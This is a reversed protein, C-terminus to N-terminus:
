RRKQSSEDGCTKPYEQVWVTPQARDGAVREHSVILWEPMNPGTRVPQSYAVVNKKTNRKKAENDLREQDPSVMTETVTVTGTAVCFNSTGGEM